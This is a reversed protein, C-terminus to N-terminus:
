ENGRRGFGRLQLVSGRIDDFLSNNKSIEGKENLNGGTFTKPLLWRKEESKINGDFKVTKRATNNGRGFPLTPLPLAGAIVKASCAVAPCFAVGLCYKLLLVCRTQKSKKLM